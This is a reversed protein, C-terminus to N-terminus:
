RQLWDAVLEAIRQPQDILMWHTADVLVEDYEAAVFEGSGGAAAPDFALDGAAHIYRTPVQVPPLHLPRDPNFLDPTFNARYWEAMATFRGPESWESIYAQREEDPLSSGGFVWDALPRYGQQALLAEGPPGLNLLWVYFSRALQQPNAAAVQQFRTPHPAALVVLRELRRALLVGCAWGVAGGFDHGALHAREAGAWDLLAAVDGVLEGMRYRDTGVPMSSRGFGRNDPILLRFRDALLPAVRLWGRGSDPWGHLLVLVPADDPGAVRVFLEVDGNSVTASEM